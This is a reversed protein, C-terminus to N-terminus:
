SDDKRGIARMAYRVRITESETSEFGAIEAQIDSLGKLEYIFDEFYDYVGCSKCFPGHFDVIFEDGKVEILKAMAEPSRYRNYKEIAKAIAERM